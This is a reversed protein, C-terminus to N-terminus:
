HVKDTPNFGVINLLRKLHTSKVFGTGDEDCIVFADSLENIQEETFHDM